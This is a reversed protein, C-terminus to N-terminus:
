WWCWMLLIEKDWDLTELINSFKTKVAKIDSFYWENYDTSGFFFGACTPLLSSIEDIDKESLVDNDKYKLVLNCKEILDEVQCKAIEMYTRNDEYDFYPILFNVKRFYAVPNVNKANDWNKITRKRKPTKYFHIDLGM